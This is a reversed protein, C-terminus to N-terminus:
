KSDQTSVAKFQTEYDEIVGNQIAVVKFISAPDYRAELMSVFAMETAQLAVEYRSEGILSIIKLSLEKSEEFDIENETFKIM